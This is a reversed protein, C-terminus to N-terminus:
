RGSPSGTRTRLVRASLLQPQGGADADFGPELVAPRVPVAEQGAHLQQRHLALDPGAAAAHQLRHGHALRRSLRAGGDDGGAGQAPRRRHVAAPRRGQHLRGPRRLLDGLRVAGRRARRSLRADHRAAHRRRLLRDVNIKEIGTERKVADAAALIGENMYDEFTKHALREDPNVWSVVFVTFGKTSSSAQHPEEAPALDLIYFKNIWPPVILLPRERVKDTTPTYQILQFLDNQISSRAPRPRSTAASRSPARTPRASAQPPRGVQEM